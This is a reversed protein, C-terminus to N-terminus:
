CLSEGRSFSSLKRWVLVGSPVMAAFMQIIAWSEVWFHGRTHHIVCDAIHTKDLRMKVLRMPIVVRTCERHRRVELPRKSVKVRNTQTQTQIAAPCAM